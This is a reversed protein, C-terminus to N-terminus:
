KHDSNIGELLMKRDIKGNINLPLEDMFIIKKPVMYAPLKHALDHKIRISMKLDNEKQGDCLVVFACLFIVKNNEKVPVVCNSSIYDLKQLNAEIDNVEIRYGNLKIQFDKRGVYYLLGDRMYVLDGTNYRRLGCTDTSFVKETESSSNYYGRAVSHSSIYLEGVVDGLESVYDQKIEIEGDDILYGIPLEQAQMLMEATIECASIAVTAETPGYANILKADKYWVLLDKALDKTLVEGDFIIEEISSRTLELFQQDYMCMKMFSPTSIWINPKYKEIYEDLLPFNGSMDKDINVLYNGLPLCVYLGIVSLDFSYPAQNITAKNIMYPSFYKSFWTSFNVLNRKCIPVGKPEGTSGSTFLIYCIDEDKVWSSSKVGGTSCIKETFKM